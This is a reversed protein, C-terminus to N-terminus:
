LGGKIRKFLKLLRYLGKKIPIDRDPAVFVTDQAFKTKFERLPKISPSFDDSGIGMLDYHKMGLAALAAAEELVQKDVARTKHNNISAGYYRVAETGQCTVVSWSVLEGAVRSTYVKAHEPGLTRLFHEYDKQPAPAFGDRQATQVMLEYYPTFDQSALETEDHFTAPSERLSKRVDRRGRSKFTALIAEKDPNSLDIKVTENYPVTSLVPESLAAYHKVAIRLFAISADTAKVYDALAAIVKQEDEQVPSSRWVPGHHARLFSFGHTTYKMFAVCCLFSSTKNDSNTGDFEKAEHLIPQASDNSEAEIVADKDHDEDIRYFGYPERGPITQEFEAWLTTQEIPLSLNEAKSLSEYEEATIPTITVM